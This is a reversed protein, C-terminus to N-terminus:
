ILSTLLIYVGLGILVLPFIIHGTKMRKAILPHRVLYYAIICWIATMIM